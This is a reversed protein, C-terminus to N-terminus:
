RQSPVARDPPHPQGVHHLAAPPPMRRPRSDGDTDKERAGSDPNVTWGAQDLLAHRAQSTTPRADTEVRWWTRASRALLGALRRCGPFLVDIMGQKNVAM